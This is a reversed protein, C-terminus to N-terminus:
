RIKLSPHLLAWASFLSFLLTDFVLATYIFLRKAREGSKRSVPPDCSIALLLILFIIYAGTYIV